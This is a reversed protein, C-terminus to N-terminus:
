VGGSEGGGAEAAGMHQPCRSVHAWLAGDLQGLDNRGSPPGGAVLTARCSARSSSAPRGPRGLSHGRTCAWRGWALRLRAPPTNNVGCRREARRGDVGRPTDGHAPAGPHGSPRAARPGWCAPQLAMGGGLTGARPRLGAGGGTAVGHQALVMRMRVGYGYRDNGGQGLRAIDAWWGPHFSRAGHAVPMPFGNMVDDDGQARQAAVADQLLICAGGLRRLRRHFARQTLGTPCVPRLHPRVSRRLGRESKWPVGSRWQAALGLCLVAADSMQAPPGGGAPRCPKLDSQYVDDVMVSLAVLFTALDRAM